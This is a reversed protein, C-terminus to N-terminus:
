KRKIDHVSRPSVATPLPKFHSRLERGLFRVQTAQIFVSGREMHAFVNYFVIWNIAHYQKIPRRDTSKPSSNQERIIFVMIDVRTPVDKGEDM